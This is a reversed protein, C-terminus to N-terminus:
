GAIGSAQEQLTNETESRDAAPLPLSLSIKTGTRNSHIQMAGNFHRVRERMGTIGVGSRQAHIGDLKEAPIGKGQDQVELRVGDADRSLRLTATKSGSHRHINTLCEQTIRFMALEMETPLRGFDEAINLDVNLGSREMLGHLYWRIAEPLGNEDLLPPHLLYSTTRIEKNLQQLLTQSDDLAKGLVPNKRAHQTMSALDMGLAAIIQGASDHLERAINRREDDQTQLLRNSLERLQESQQLVEANRLELERTRSHV